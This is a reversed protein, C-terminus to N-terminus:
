FQSGGQLLEGSDFDMGCDQPSLSHHGKQKTLHIKKPTDVALLWYM